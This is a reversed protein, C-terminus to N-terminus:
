EVCNGTCSHDVNGPPDQHGSNPEGPQGQESDASQESDSPTQESANASAKEAKRSMAAAGSDPSTQDGVQLNDTDPSTPEGSTSAVMAAGASPRAVHTASSRNSAFAVAAAAILLVVATLLIGRIYTM